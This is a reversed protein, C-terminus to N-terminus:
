DDYTALVENGVSPVLSEFHLVTQPGLDVIPTTSAEVSPLLLEESPISYRCISQPDFSNTISHTLNKHNLHHTDKSHM